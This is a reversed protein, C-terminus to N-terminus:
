LLLKALPYHTTHKREQGELNGYKPLFSHVDIPFAPLHPELIALLQQRDLFCQALFVTLPAIETFATEPLNRHLTTSCFPHSSLRIVPLWWMKFSGFLTEIGWRLAYDKVLDPAKPPAIVVLLDRDDLRLAEVAVPYGWVKCTGTLHQFQGVQLHAFVVRAALLKGAHEIQDSSRIRLRFAFTPELLLYRV